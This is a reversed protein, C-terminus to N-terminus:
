KRQTFVARKAKIKTYNHEFKHNLHPPISGSRQPLKNHETHDRTEQNDELNQKLADKIRHKNRLDIPNEFEISVMLDGFNPSPCFIRASNIGTCIVVQMAPVQGTTREFSLPTVSIESGHLRKM